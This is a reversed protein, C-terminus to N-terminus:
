SKVGLPRYNAQENHPDETKLSAGYAAGSVLLKQDLVINNEDDITGLQILDFDEVHKCIQSKPDAVADTYMRVATAIHKHIFILTQPVFDQAKNDM